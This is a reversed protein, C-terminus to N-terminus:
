SANNNEAETTESDAFNDLIDAANQIADAKVNLNQATEILAQSAKRLVNAFEVVKSLPEDVLDKTRRAIIVATYLCTVMVVPIGIVLMIVVDSTAFYAGIMIICAITTSFLVRILVYALLNTNISSKMKQVEKNTELLRSTAAPICIKPPTQCSLVQSLAEAKLLASADTM